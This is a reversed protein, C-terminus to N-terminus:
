RNKTFMYQQLPQPPECSGTIKLTVNYTGTDKFTHVPNQLTSTSNDGFNWLCTLNDGKSTDTFSVQYEKCGVNSPSYKFGAQLPGYVTVNISETDIGCLNSDKLIVTYKGPNNFKHTPGAGISSWGSNSGDGFDLFLIKHQM